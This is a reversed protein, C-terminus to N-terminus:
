KMYIEGFQNDNHKCSRLEYNVNTKAQFHIDVSVIVYLNQKMRFLSLNKSYLVYFFLSIFLDLGGGARGGRGM